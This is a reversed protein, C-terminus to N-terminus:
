GLGLDQVQVAIRGSCRRTPPSRRRSVARHASSEYSPLVDCSPHHLTPQRLRRRSLWSPGRMVKLKTLLTRLIIHILSPIRAKVLLAGVNKTSAPLQAIPRTLPIHAPRAKPSPQELPPSLIHSDRRKALQLIDAKTCTLIHPAHPVSILFACRSRRRASADPM